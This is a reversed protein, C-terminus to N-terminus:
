LTKGKGRYIPKFLFSYPIEWKSHFTIIQNRHFKRGIKVNNSLSFYNAANM